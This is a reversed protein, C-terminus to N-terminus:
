HLEQLATLVRYINMMIEKFTAFNLQMPGASISKMRQTMTLM